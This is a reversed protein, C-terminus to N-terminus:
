NGVTSGPPEDHRHIMLEYLIWCYAGPQGTLRYMQSSLAIDFTIRFYALQGSPGASPRYDRTIEWKWGRGDPNETFLASARM